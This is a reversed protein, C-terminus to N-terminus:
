LTFYFTAGQDIQAEAWIQGEHREIIRKVTALGVGTGEFQATSHLRQFAGFLKDVFKMDFGAGNDKVFYVSKGDTTTMGFEISADAKKATFKWANTLLNTMVVHLLQQDGQAMVNEAILISVQRDPKASQIEQIITRAMQSLDVSSRTPEQRSFRSLSLLGEILQAMRHASDVIRTLHQRGKEDLQKGYDELLIQAYSAMTRLPARLDHSVAYSFTELERNVSNLETAQSELKSISERYGQHTMEFPALSTSLLERTAAITRASEQSVPTLVETLAVVYAEAVMLLGLKTELASRGLEYGRQLGFEGAGSLFSILTALYEETIQHKADKM